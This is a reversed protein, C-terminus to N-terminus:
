RASVSSTPFPTSTQASSPASLGCLRRAEERAAASRASERRLEACLLRVMLQLTRNQIILQSTPHRDFDIQRRRLADDPVPPWSRPMSARGGHEFEQRPYPAVQERASLSDRQLAVKEFPPPPEGTQAARLEDLHEVKRFMVSSSFFPLFHLLVLKRTTTPLFGLPRRVVGRRGRTRARSM